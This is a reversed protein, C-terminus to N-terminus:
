SGMVFSTIHDQIQNRLRVESIFYSLFTPLNNDSVEIAQPLCISIWPAGQGWVQELNISEDGASLTLMYNTSDFTREFITSRGRLEEMKPKLFFKITKVIKGDQQLALLAAIKEVPHM